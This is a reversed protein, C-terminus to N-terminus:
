ILIADIKRETEASVHVSANVYPDVCIDGALSFGRTTWGSMLSTVESPFTFNTQGNITLGSDGAGLGSLESFGTCVSGWCPRTLM